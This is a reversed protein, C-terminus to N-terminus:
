VGDLYGPNPPCKNCMPRWRTWSTHHQCSWRSSAEQDPDPSVAVSGMDYFKEPKKKKKKKSFKKTLDKPDLQFTLASLWTAKKKRDNNLKNGVTPM